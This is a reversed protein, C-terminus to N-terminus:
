DTKKAVQIVNHAGELYICDCEGHSVLRSTEDVGALQQNCIVVLEGCSSSNSFTCCQDVVLLELPSAPGEVPPTDPLLDVMGRNRLMELLDPVDLAVEHLEIKSLNPCIWREETEMSVEDVIPKGLCKFIEKLEAISGPCSFKELWIEELLPFCGLRTPLDVDSLSISSRGRIRLSKLRKFTETTPLIISLLPLFPRPNQTILEFRLVHRWDTIPIDSEYYDWSTESTLGQVQINPSRHEAYADIRLRRVQSVVYEIVNGSPLQIRTDPDM